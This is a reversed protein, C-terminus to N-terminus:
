RSRQGRQGARLRHRAGNSTARPSPEAPPKWVQGTREEIYRRILRRLIQSPTADEDACLREFVAKKRPDVLITLRATRDETTLAAGLALSMLHQTRNYDMACRVLM